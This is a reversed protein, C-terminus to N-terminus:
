GPRCRSSRPKRWLPRRMRCKGLIRSATAQHLGDSNHGTTSDPEILRNDPNQGIL